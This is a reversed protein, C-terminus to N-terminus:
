WRVTLTTLTMDDLPRDTIFTKYGEGNLSLALERIMGKEHSTADTWEFGIGMDGRKAAEDIEQHVRYSQNQLWRADTAQNRLVEDKKADEKFTSEQAERRSREARTEDM